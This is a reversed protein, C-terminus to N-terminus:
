ALVVGGGGGSISGRAATLSRMDEDEDEDEEAEEEEEEEAQLGDDNAAAPGVHREYVAEGAQVGVNGLFPAAAAGLFFRWIVGAPGLFGVWSGSGTLALPEEERGLVGKPLEELCDGLGPPGTWRLATVGDGAGGSGFGAELSFSLGEGRPPM